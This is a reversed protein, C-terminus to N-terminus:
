INRIKKESYCSVRQSLIHIWNWNWNFIPM